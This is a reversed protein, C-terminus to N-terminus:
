RDVELGDAETTGPKFGNFVASGRYAANEGELIGLSCQSSARYKIKEVAANFKVTKPPGAQNAYEIGDLAQSGITIVCGLVGLSELEIKHSGSCKIAIPGNKEGPGIAKLVYNCGTTRVATSANNGLVSLDLRCEGYRPHVELTTSEKTPNPAGEEFTNFTAKHCEALAAPGFEFRHTSTNAGNVQVPYTEARFEFPPPQTSASAAAIASAACAMAFALGILRIRKM